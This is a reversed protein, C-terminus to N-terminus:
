YAPLTQKVLDRLEDLSPADASAHLEITAVVRRGWKNDAEGLVLVARIAPHSGMAAEVAAPWVKEGGTIIVDGVRGHVSLVGDADIAGADGTAFWGDVKPDTGDRYCRLLTSSKVHIQSED